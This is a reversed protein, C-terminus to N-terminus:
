MLYFMIIRAFSFPENNENENNRIAICELLSTLDVQKFQHIMSVTNSPLITPLPQM